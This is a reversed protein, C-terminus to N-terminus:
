GGKKARSRAAHFLPLVSKAFNRVHDSESPDAAVRKVAALAEADGPWGNALAEVARQRVYVSEDKGTAAEGSGSAARVLAALAEADGSWGSALAVM